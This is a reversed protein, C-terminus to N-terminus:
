QCGLSQMSEAAEPEAAVGPFRVAVQELTLCAEQTQGLEGLSQGLRLLSNAALPGDPAASFTELYERAAEAPQGLERLAEGRLFHAEGTLPGGTYAAVFTAFMEAAGHYDGGDLAARARDFDAQESSALKPVEAPEASGVPAPDKAPGGLERSIPLNSIDCGEEMECLRFELNKVRNTGDAVM